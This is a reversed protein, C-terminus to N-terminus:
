TEETELCIRGDIDTLYYPTRIPLNNKEYNALCYKGRKKFLTFLKGFRLGYSIIPKGRKKTKISSNLNTNKVAEAQQISSNIKNSM